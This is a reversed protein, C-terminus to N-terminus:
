DRPIVIRTDFFRCGLQHTAAVSSVQGYAKILTQKLRRWRVKRNGAKPLGQWILDQSLLHEKAQIINIGSCISPCPETLGIISGELDFKIRGVHLVRSETLPEFRESFTSVASLASLAHPDCHGHTLVSSRM